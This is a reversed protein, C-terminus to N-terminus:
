RVFGAVVMTAGLEDPRFYRALIEVVAVSRHRGHRCYLVVELDQRNVKHLATTVGLMWGLGPPHPRAHIYPPVMANCFGAPPAPHARAAKQHVDAVPSAPSMNPIAVVVLWEM